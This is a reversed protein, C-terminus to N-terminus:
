LQYMCSCGQDYHFNAHRTRSTLERYSMHQLQFLKGSLIRDPFVINEDPIAQSPNRPIGGLGQGLRARTRIDAQSALGQLMGPESLRRGM